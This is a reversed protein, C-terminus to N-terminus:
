FTKNDKPIHFKRVNFSDCVKDIKQRLVKSDGGVFVILFVQILNKQQYEDDIIEEPEPDVFYILANGKSVRFVM